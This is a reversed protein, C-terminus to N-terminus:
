ALGLTFLGAHVTANNVGACWAFGCVVILAVTFVVVTITLGIFVM